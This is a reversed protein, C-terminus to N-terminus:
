SYRPNLALRAERGSRASPRSVTGSVDYGRRGRLNPWSSEAVFSVFNVFNKRPKKKTVKTASIMTVPGPDRRPMQNRSHGATVKAAQGHRRRPEGHSANARCCM